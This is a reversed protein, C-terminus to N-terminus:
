PRDQYVAARHSGPLFACVINRTGDFSLTHAGTETPVTERRRLPTTDFVEIVGPDGIAVYLRALATNFFVVDPVGAIAETAVIEGSDADLEVLVGADCACFLRRRGVDIDLGHPGAHPAAVVRRIRVPDGADVVVIQPPDAINVHFADAVPDYVTWRTRGAVAVDAIRKRARVDVVSVSCSGSVAPDGVHAALLRGRRPDYALGNPRIGVGIKEVRGPELPAAAGGPRGSRQPTHPAMEPGGMRFVGVTNEGRNSTFVLDPEAVLAGAVGTLGPISGVHRRADIDIVDIADNATHAVYIRGTPEHVAAHDFGGAKAHAPLDVFGLHRLSV